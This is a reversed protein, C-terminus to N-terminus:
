VPSRRVPSAADLLQGGIRDVRDVGAMAMTVRLEAQWGHLLDRLGREASDKFLASIVIGIVVLAVAAWVTAFLLVRSTLSNFREM